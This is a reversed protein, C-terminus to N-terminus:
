SRTEFLMMETVDRFVFFSLGTGMSLRIVVSSGKQKQCSTPTERIFNVGATTAMNEGSQVARASEAHCDNREVSHQRM